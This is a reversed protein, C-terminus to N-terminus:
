DNPLGLTKTGAFSQCKCKNITDCSGKRRSSIRANSRILSIKRRRGIFNLPHSFVCCSVILFGSPRIIDKEPAGWCRRRVPFSGLRCNSNWFVGFVGSFFLWFCLRVCDGCQSLLCGEGVQVRNKQFMALKWGLARHQCVIGVSNVEGRFRPVFPKEGEETCYLVVKDNGIYQRREDASMLPAVHFVIEWGGWFTTYYCRGTQMGTFHPWTAADVERGLSELLARQHPAIATTEFMDSEKWQGSSGFVVAVSLQKRSMRTELALLLPRMIVNLADPAQTWHMSADRAMLADVIGAEFEKGSFSTRAFGAGSIMLGPHVGVADPYKHVCCISYITSGEEAASSATLSSSSGSSNTRHEGMYVDHAKELFERRYLEPDNKLCLASPQSQGWLVFTEADPPSPMLLLADPMLVNATKQQQEAARPESSAKEALNSLAASGEAGGAAGEELITVASAVAAVVSHTPPPVASVKDRDSSRGLSFMSSGTKKPIPLLKDRPSTTLPPTLGSPPDDTNKPSMPRRRHSGGPSTPSLSGNSAGSSNDVSASRPRTAPNMLISTRSSPAMFPALTKIPEPCDVQVARRYASDDRAGAEILLKAIGADNDLVAKLLPSQGLKNPQAVNCGNAILLKVAEQNRSKVASFMANHGDSDLANVDVKKSRLLALFSSPTTGGVSSVQEPRLGCLLHILTAGGPTRCDCSAGAEVLLVAIHLFGRGTASQLPTWGWEDLRDVESPNAHAIAEVNGEMVAVHLSVADM